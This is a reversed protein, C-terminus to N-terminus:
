VKLTLCHVFLIGADLNKENKYCYKQLVTKKVVTNKIERKKSVTILIQRCFSHLDLPNTAMSFQTKFFIYFDLYLDM